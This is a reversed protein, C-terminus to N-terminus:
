LFASPQSSGGNPYFDVHGLPKLHGFGSQVRPAGDTHIVDVFLADSSDLRDDVPSDYFDPGAPDIGLFLYLYNITELAFTGLGSIRGLNAFDRGVYSSVHAGLSHGILHIQQPQAGANIMAQLLTRIAAAVLVTNAVAQGYPFQNGGSWDVTIVNM